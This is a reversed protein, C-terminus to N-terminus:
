RFGQQRDESLPLERDSDTEGIMKNAYCDAHGEPVTYTASYVWEDPHWFMSKVVLKCLRSSRCCGCVTIGDIRDDVFFMKIKALIALLFAFM